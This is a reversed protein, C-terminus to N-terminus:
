KGAILKRLVSGAFNFMCMSTGEDDGDSHARVRTSDVRVGDFHLSLHQTPTSLVAETMVEVIRDEVGQWLYALTSAEPWQKARAGEMQKCGSYVDPAVSCAWWRLFRALAGLRDAIEKPVRGAISTSGMVMEHLIKKGVAVPVHLDQTCVDERQFAIKKLMDIEEKWVIMDQLGLREIMQYLLVPMCNQIDFDVTHGLLLKQLRRDMGQSSPTAGAYRRSRWAVQVPYSVTNTTMGGGPGQMSLRARKPGHRGVAEPGASRSLDLLELGQREASRISEMRKTVQLVLPSDGGKPKRRPTLAKATGDLAGLLLDLNAKRAPCGHMYEELKSMDDLEPLQVGEPDVPRASMTSLDQAGLNVQEAKVYLAGVPRSTKIVPVLCEAAKGRRGIDTWWECEQLRSWLADRTLNTGQRVSMNVYYGRTLFDIKKDLMLRFLKCSAQHLQAADQGGDADDALALGLSGLAAMEPDKIESLPKLGSAERLYRLTVGHDGGMRTYEVIIKRCEDVSHSREFAHQIKLGAACAVDSTYFTELDPDRTFLGVKHPEYEVGHMVGPEVLRAQIRIVAFRRLISEFNSEDVHSFSVMQNLELRKWGICSYLKTLIGYPMRGAIGEGTAFKKLLDQRMTQKGGVPKEQGTYVFRGVMKDIQKRLETDDYFVNPDYLNHNDTGLMAALHATYSSMGVGGPGWYVTITNVNLGRAALAWCAQGFTFGGACAWFTEEYAKQLRTIAAELVPDVDALLNHPIATYINRHPSRSTLFSINQGNSDYLLACDAYAMGKARQMPQNCWETFKAIVKGAELNRILQSTVRGVVRAVHIQWSLGAHAGIEHVVDHGGAGGAMQDPPAGPGPAAGGPAGVEGPGEQRGAAAARAGPLAVHDPAANKEGLLTISAMTCQQFFAEVPRGGIKAHIADLVAKDNREVRGTTIRFLGELVLSFKKIYELVDESVLGQYAHWHGLAANYEYLLGRHARLRTNGCMVWLLHVHDRDTLDNWRKNYMHLAAMALHVLDPTWTPYQRQVVERVRETDGLVSHAVGKPLKNGETPLDKYGDKASAWMAQFKTFSTSSGPIQTRSSLISAMPTQASAALPDPGQGVITDVEPVDLDPAVDPPAQVVREEDGERLPDVLVRPTANDDEPFFEMQDVQATALVTLVCPVASRSLM